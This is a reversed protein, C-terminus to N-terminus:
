YLRDVLRYYAGVLPLFWPPGFHGPIAQWRLGAWPNAGPRGDMVESMVEGMHVSMQVGHGSYGLSYFLGDHEGARPLRDVVMDILGGWCYEIRTGRLQPFIELMDRELIQGSKADSRPNSLAFRARGGFILRDDSSIRFYHGITRTTTANRRTPMIADLMSASLPETAIIFSGIPVFRRQFWGFPGSTYAGTAILVQDADLTGRQTVLEHTGRPLRRHHTVTANEYIRVGHRTAAEALGIGFRGVHLSASRRFLLAGHFRTSGIEVSLDDAPILAIDSDVERALLEANAALRHFHAPKAALNLKGSRRFDCDISEEAVLREVTDVAADYAHYLNRAEDLGLKSAFSEFDHAIGNNCQGGNRGSAASAVLGAELLTVTAGRKALASAASLGTFGGGVVAVDTRGDIPGTTATGFRPATDLWYPEFKM